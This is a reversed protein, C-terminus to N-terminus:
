PIDPLLPTLLAHLQKRARFLRVRVLVTSIHMSEAIEETSMNAFYFLVIVQRYEDSLELIAHQLEEYTDHPPSDDALHEHVFTHLETTANISVTRRDHRQWSRCVNRAISFIWAALNGDTFSRRQEYVIMMVHQLLDQAADIDKTFSFCYAMVGQSVHDYFSAFAGQEDRQVARFLPELDAHTIRM